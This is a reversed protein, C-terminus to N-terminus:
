RGPDRAIRILGLSEGAQDCRDHGTGAPRSVIQKASDLPDDEVREFYERTEREIRESRTERRSTARRINTGNGETGKKHNKFQEVKEGSRCILELDDFVKGNDNDGQHFASAACGEIALCLDEVTYGEKLRASINRKRKATLKADPHNLTKQWHLFVLATSDNSEVITPKPTNGQGNVNKKQKQTHKQKQMDHSKHSAQTVTRSADHRPTVSAHSHTVPAHCNKDTADIGNGRSTTDKERKRQQRERDKERRNEVTALQRYKEANLVLWGGPVREIRRGDFEPDSSDPDPSELVDLAALCPEIEVHARHALNQECAFRAFGDQDMAALLTIWVIRTQDSELWISSDLIQSFLKVYV